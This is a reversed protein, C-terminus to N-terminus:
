PESRASTFYFRTGDETEERSAIVYMQWRLDPLLEDVLHGVEDHAPDFVFMSMMTIGDVRDIRTAVSERNWSSIGFTGDEVLEIKAYGDIDIAEGLIAVLYKRASPEVAWHHM